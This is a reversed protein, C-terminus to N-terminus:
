KLMGLGQFSNLTVSQTMKMLAQGSSTEPTVGMVKTLAPKMDNKIKGRETSETVETAIKNEDPVLLIDCLQSTETFNKRFKQSTM